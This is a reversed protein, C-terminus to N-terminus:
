FTQLLQAIKWFPQEGSTTLPPPSLDGRESKVPSDRIGADSSRPSGVRSPSATGETPSATGDALELSFVHDDSHM